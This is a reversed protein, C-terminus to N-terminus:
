ANSVRWILAAMRGTSGDRRYSYFQDDCATCLASPFVRCVGCCRLRHAVLAPLDMRWRPQDGSDEDVALALAREGADLADHVIDGVPYCRQCIGPGLWALVRDPSIHLAGVAAEVVGSVTGRWGCHVAAVVSGDDAALLLPVCDAVLVALAVNSAVTYSADATVPPGNATAPTAAVVRRGHEQDLWQMDDIGTIARLRARNGLVIQPDDGVHFALNFSDFPRKSSGGHRTTVLARINSSAVWDPEILKQAGAGFM